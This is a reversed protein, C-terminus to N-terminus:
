SKGFMELMEGRKFFKAWDLPTSKYWRDKISMDPGAVLAMRALEMDGRDAAIHMLTTQGEGYRMNVLAPEAALMAGAREKWGLDWAELVSCGAGHDVLWKAAEVQKCYIAVQILSLKNSLVQDLEAATTKFQELMAINGMGVAEALAVERENPSTAGFVAENVVWWTSGDGVWRFGVQSYMRKGTANLTVYRRGKERAWRCGAVVLAKGVGRERAETQVAVNYMGAVGLEGDNLVVVAHGVVKGHWRAIFQRVVGPRTKMLMRSVAGHDGAYPLDKVQAPDFENDAVIELGEPRSHEEIFFGGGVERKNGAAREGRDGAAGGGRDGATRM